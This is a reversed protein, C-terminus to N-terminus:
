ALEKERSGVAHLPIFTAKKETPQAPRIQGRESVFVVNDDSQDSNVFHRFYKMKEPDEITAKWECRYSKVLHAIEAELEACIGLSDEIIVKQLYELGGELKNLWTATRELRGATRIYFM